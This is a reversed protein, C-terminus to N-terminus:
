EKKSATGRTSNMCRTNVVIGPSGLLIRVAKFCERKAHVFLLWCLKKRFTVGETEPLSPIINERFCDVSVAM